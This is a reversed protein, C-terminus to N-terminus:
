KTDKPISTSDRLTVGLLRCLTRFDGRTAPRDSMTGSIDLHLGTRQACFAGRWGVWAFAPLSDRVWPVTALEDDDERVTALIHNALLQRANM